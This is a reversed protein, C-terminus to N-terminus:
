KTLEKSYREFFLDLGEEIVSGQTWKKGTNLQKRKQRSIEVFLELRRLRSSQINITKSEIVSDIDKWRPDSPNILVPTNKKM